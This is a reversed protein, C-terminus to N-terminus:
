GADVTPPAHGYEILVLGCDDKPQLQGNLLASRANCARFAVIPFLLDDFCCNLVADDDFEGGRLHSVGKAQVFEHRIRKLDLSSVKMGEFGSQLILVGALHEESMFGVYVQKERAELRGGVGMLNEL